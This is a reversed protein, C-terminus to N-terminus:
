RGWPLDLQSERVQPPKPPYVVGVIIWQDPFRHITGMLFLIDKEFFETEFRQRFKAEWGPGYGEVCKWYLAGAEWDTLKHTHEETGSPTDISYRYHFEYPFPPM